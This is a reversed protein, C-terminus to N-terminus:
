EQYKCYDRVVEFMGTEDMVSAGRIAYCSTIGDSNEVLTSGFAGTIGPLHLNAHTDGPWM